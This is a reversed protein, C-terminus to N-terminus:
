IIRMQKLKTNSQRDNDVHRYVDNRIKNQYASNNIGYNVIDCTGDSRMVCDYFCYNNIPETVNIKEVHNGIQKEVTFKSVYPHTREQTVKCFQVIDQMSTKHIVCTAIFNVNTENTEIDTDWGFLFPLTDDEWSNTHSCFVTDDPSVTKKLELICQTVAMYLANYADSGYQPTSITADFEFSVISPNM